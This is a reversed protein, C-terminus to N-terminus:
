AEHEVDKATPDWPRHGRRDGRGAACLRRDLVSRHGALRRPDPVHHALRDLLGPARVPQFGIGIGRLRTPYSLTAYNMLNAGPGGAQAFVFASLMAVSVLVLAGNPIGVVALLGLSVAQVAFGVLPSGDSHRLPQRHENRAARRHHRLRSQHHLSSVITILPTQHFLTTIILPTGYAVANYGFTSFV